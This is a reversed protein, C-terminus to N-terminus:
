GSRFSAALTELESWRDVRKELEAEADALTRTTWTEEWGATAENTTPVPVLECHALVADRAADTPPFRWGSVCRQAADRTLEQEATGQCGAAILVSAVLEALSADVDLSFEWMMQPGDDRPPGPVIPAM